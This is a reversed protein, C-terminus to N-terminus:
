SISKNLNKATKSGLYSGVGLGILSGLPGFFAGVAGLIAGGSILGSVSVASRLMQRTHDEAKIISPIELASLFVISLVPTRQTARSLIKSLMNGEIRIGNELYEVKKMGLKKLFNYTIEQEFLTKDIKILHEFCKYRDLLTDKIFTFPKQVDNKKFDFSILQQIASKVDTYDEKVNIIQIFTKGTAKLYDRNNLAEVIGGGRRFFPVSSLVGAAAENKHKDDNKFSVFTDYVKSIDQKLKSDICIRTLERRDNGSRMDNVVSVNQQRRDKQCQNYLSFIDM